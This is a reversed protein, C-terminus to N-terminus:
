KSLRLLSNRFLYLFISFLKYIHEEVKLNITMWIKHLKMITQYDLGDFKWIIQLSKLNVTKSPSDFSLSIVYFKFLWWDLFLLVCRYVKINKLNKKYKNLPGNDINDFYDMTLPDGSLVFITVKNDEFWYLPMDRKSRM